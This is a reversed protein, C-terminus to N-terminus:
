DLEPTLPLTCEPSTALRDCPWMSVFLEDVNVCVVLTSKSGGILRIHMSKSMPFFGFYGSLVWTYVSLDHLSWVSLVLLSDLRSREATLLPSSVV